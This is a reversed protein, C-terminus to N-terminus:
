RRQAHAYNILTIAAWILLVMLVAAAGNPHHAVVVATAGVGLGMSGLGLIMGTVGNSRRPVAPPPPSAAPMLPTPAAPGRYAPPQAPASQVPPPQAPASQVQGPPGPWSRGGIRADIRRDIEEGIREVLGEAVATDYRPGLEAHAAVSASIEDREDANVRERYTAERRGAVFSCFGNGLVLAARGQRGMARFDPPGPVACENQEGNIKDKRLPRIHGAAPTRRFQCVPLIFGV